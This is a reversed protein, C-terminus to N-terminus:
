SAAEGVVRVIMDLEAETLSPYLPLCLIRAAADMANPTETPDCGRRGSMYSFESALPYFYKRAKVGSQLLATSVRDRVARDRFLVPMYAYNHKSSTVKQFALGEIGSLRERYTECLIRRAFIKEDIVELNCLGAAAHVESMKANTGPLVVSEESAIGHNRLNKAARIVDPHPSFLAGGEITNYVKTAHFSATSVDGYQYVSRGGHEVGFAHAADFVLALGFERAISALSEIDCPNGFVHVGLIASTDERVKRRVDGPDICLTGANIDAFVPELGEWVLVNTTAAFTFPTTIVSGRLRLAKVALHLAQTGNSVLAIQGVGLYSCLSAELERVLEGDNTVWNNEWIKKLRVIFRDLAPLDTRTVNIM